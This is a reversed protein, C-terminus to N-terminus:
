KGQCRVSGCARVDVLSKSAAVCSPRLGFKGSAEAQACVAYCTGGGDPREAEPCGLRKLAACARACTPYAAAEIAPDDADAPDGVGQPYSGDAADAHQLDPAFPPPCGVLALLGALMVAGVALVSLRRLRRV